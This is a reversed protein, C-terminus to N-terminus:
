RLVVDDGQLCDPLELLDSFADQNRNGRVYSDLKTREIDSQARARGSEIAFPFFFTRSLM